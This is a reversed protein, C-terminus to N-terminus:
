EVVEITGNMTAPQTTSEYHVIGPKTLKVQFTSGEGFNGSAFHQPGSTSTVNHPVSDDNTWRVTTGARVKLTDPDIAYNRYAILVVGSQLPASSPVRAYSPTGQARLASSASTLPPSTASSSSPTATSGCGAALLLVCCALVALITARVERVARNDVGRREM